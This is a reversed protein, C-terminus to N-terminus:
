SAPEFHGPVIKGNELHAPVYTGGPTDTDRHIFFILVAIVLVACVLALYGITRVPWDNANSVSRRSALLWLAYLAFPLLFLIADFLFFRVM